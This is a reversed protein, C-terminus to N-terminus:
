KKLCFVAYSIKVHSSNLRTSKRDVGEGTHPPHLARSRLEEREDVGLDHRHALLDDPEAGADGLEGELAVAPLLEVGREHGLAEVELREAFALHEREPEDAAALEPLAVHPEGDAVPRGVVDAAAEAHLVDGGRHEVLAAVEEALVEHLVDLRG